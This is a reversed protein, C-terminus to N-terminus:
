RCRGCAIQSRPDIISVNVNQSPLPTATFSPM